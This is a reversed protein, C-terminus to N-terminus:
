LSALDLNSYLAKFRDMDENVMCKFLQNTIQRKRNVAKKLQTQEMEESKKKAKELVGHPLGALHAVNLRYLPAFV